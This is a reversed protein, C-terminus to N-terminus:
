AVINIKWLCYSATSKIWFLPVEAVQVCVRFLISWCCSFWTTVDTCYAVIMDLFSLCIVLNCCSSSSSDGVSIFQLCSLCLCLISDDDLRHNIRLSAFRSGSVGMRKLFIMLFPDTCHFHIHRWYTHGGLPNARSSTMCLMSLSTCYCVMTTCFIISASLFGSQCVHFSSNLYSSLQELVLLKSVPAYKWLIVYAKCRM